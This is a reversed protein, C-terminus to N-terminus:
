SERESAREIEARAQCLASPSSSFSPQARGTRSCTRWKWGCSGSSQKNTHAHTLRGFRGPKSMIQSELKLKEIRRDCCCRRRRRRRHWHKGGSCNNNVDGRSWQSCPLNQILLM